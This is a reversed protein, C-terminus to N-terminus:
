LYIRREQPNGKVLCRDRREGREESREGREESREGRAERRAGGVV